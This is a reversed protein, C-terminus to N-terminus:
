RSWKGTVFYEIIEMLEEKFHEFKIDHRLDNLVAQYAYISGTNIRNVNQISVYGAEALDEVLVRNRIFINKSRYMNQLVQQYRPLGEPFIQYYSRMTDYLHNRYKPSFFIQYFIQPKVFSQDIFVSWIKLYREMPDKYDTMIKVLSENYEALYGMSMYFLLHDLDEFYNYLTASNYGAKQAVNRITIRDFGEEKMIEDAATIFSSMMRMRIKEKPDM